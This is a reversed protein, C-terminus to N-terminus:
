PYKHINSMNKSIENLISKTGKWKQLNIKIFTFYNTQKRLM